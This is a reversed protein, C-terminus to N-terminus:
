TQAQSIPHIFVKQVVNQGGADTMASPILFSNAPCGLWHFGEHTSRESTHSSSRRGGGLCDDCRRYSNRACVCDSCCLGPNKRERAIIRRSVSVSLPTRKSSNGGHGSRLEALKSNLVSLHTRTHAKRYAAGRIWNGSGDTAREGEREGQLVTAVTHRCQQCATGPSAPCSQFSLLISSPSTSVSCPWFNAFVCVKKKNNNNNDDCLVHNYLAGNCLTANLSANVPVLKMRHVSCTEHLCTSHRM